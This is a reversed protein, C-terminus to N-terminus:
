IFTDLVTASLLGASVSMAVQAGPPVTWTQATGIGGVVVVGGVILRGTAMDITHPTGSVLAQTVVFTRGEPGTVTYGGASSGEVTLVPTAPFNGYHYATISAAPDFTRTEGFKRPNRCVFQLLFKAHIAGHRAGADKFRAKTALRAYAWLTQGQHEVTLLFRSGDAGVGVVQSRLHGLEAESDAIALGDISVSRAGNLVPVDFEGHGNPIPISESRVAAGDDWGSFADEGKGVFLGTPRASAPWAAGHITTAGAQIRLLRRM